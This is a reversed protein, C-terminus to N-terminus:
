PNFTRVTGDNHLWQGNESSVTSNKGLDNTKQPVESHHEEEPDIGGFGTIYKKGNECTYIVNGNDDLSYSSVIVWHQGGEYETHLMVVRGADIESTVIKNIDEESLGKYNHFGKKNVDYDAIGKHDKRTYKGITMTGDSKCEGDSNIAALMATATVCCNDGFNPSKYIYKKDVYVSHTNMTREMAARQVPDKVHEFYRKM